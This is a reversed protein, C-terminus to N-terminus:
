PGSMRSRAAQGHVAHLYGADVLRGVMDAQRLAERPTSGRALAAASLAAARQALHADLLERVAPERAAGAWVHVMLPAHLADDTGASYRRVATDVPEGAELAAAVRAAAVSARELEANAVALFLELKTAFHAYVAGKSLGADAAIADLSAADYGREAFARRAAEILLRRTRARREEQRM